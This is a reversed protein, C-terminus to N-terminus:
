KQAWPPAEKNNAVREEYHKPTQDLKMHNEIMKHRKVVNKPDYGPSSDIGVNIMCKAGVLEDTDSIINVGISSLLERLQRLGIEVAKESQNKINYMGFVVRGEYSPGTIDFRVNIYSGGKKSSRLEAQSIVASYWGEPIPTFSTEAEPLEEIRLEKELIM